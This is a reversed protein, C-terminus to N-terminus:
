SIQGLNSLVFYVIVLWVTKVLIKSGCQFHPKCESAALIHIIKQCDFGPLAFRPASDLFRGTFGPKVRNNCIPKETACCPSRARAPVASSLLPERQCQPAASPQPLRHHLHHAPALSGPLPPLVLSPWWARDAARLPSLRGPGSGLWYVRSDRSETVLQCSQSLQM